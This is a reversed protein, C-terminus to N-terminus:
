VGEKKDGCAPCFATKEKFTKGCWLCKYLKWSDGRGDQMWAFDGFEGLYQWKGKVGDEKHGKSCFDTDTKPIIKTGWPCKTILDPKNYACEKCYIVEVKAM